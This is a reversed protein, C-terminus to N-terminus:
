VTGSKEAFKKLRARKNQFWITISRISMGLKQALLQKAERAPFPDVAFVEELLKLQQPTARKRKEQQTQGIPSSSYGGDGVSDGAGMIKEKLLKLKDELKRAMLEKNHQQEFASPKEVRDAADDKSGGNEENYGDDNDDDDDDDFEGDDRGRSWRSRKRGGEGARSPSSAFSASASASHVELRQRRQQAHLRKLQQVNQKRQMQRMLLQTQLAQTQLRLQLQEPTLATTTNSQRPPPASCYDEEAEDGEQLGADDGVYLKPSSPASQSREYPTYYFGASSDSSSSSSSSSSGSPPPPPAEPESDMRASMASPLCNFSHFFFSPEALSLGMAFSTGSSAAPSPAPSHFPSFGGAAPLARTPPSPMMPSPPSSRQPSARHHPTHYLDAPLTVTATSSSPLPSATMISSLSPLVARQYHTHQHQLHPQHHHLSYRADGEIAPPPQDHQQELRRRRLQRDDADDREELEAAGGGRSAAVQQPVPFSSGPTTRGAQDYDDDAKRKHGASASTSTSTATSTPTTAAGAGSPNLLFAIALRGGGMLGSCHAEDDDSEGRAQSSQRHQPLPPPDHRLSPPNDWPHEGFSPLHHAQNRGRQNDDDRPPSPPKPQQQQQQQQHHNHLNHRALLLGGVVSSADLDNGHHHHHHQHDAGRNAM